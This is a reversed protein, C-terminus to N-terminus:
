PTLWSKSIPHGFKISQFKLIPHGFQESLIYKCTFSLNFLTDLLCGSVGRALVITSISSRKSIMYFIVGKM